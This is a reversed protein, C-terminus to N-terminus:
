HARQGIAQAAACAECIWEIECPITLIALVGGFRNITKDIEQRMGDEDFARVCGCGACELEYEKM